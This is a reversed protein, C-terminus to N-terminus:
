IHTSRNFFRIYFRDECNHGPVQFIPRFFIRCAREVSQALLGVLRQDAYIFRELPSYPQLCIFIMVALISEIGSFLWSFGLFRQHGCFIDVHHYGSELDWTFFLLLLLLFLLKNRSCYVVLIIKLFIIIFLYIFLVYLLPVGLVVLFSFKNPSWFNQEFVKSLSHLDVNHSGVFVPKLM